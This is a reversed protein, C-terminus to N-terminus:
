KVELLKELFIIIIFLKLNMVILQHGNILLKYNSIKKFFLKQYVFQLLYNKISLEQNIVKLLYNKISLELLVIKLRPNDSQQTTELYNNM